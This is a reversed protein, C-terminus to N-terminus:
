RSPDVAPANLARQLTELAVALVDHHTHVDDTLVVATLAEDIAPHGTLPPSAPTDTM